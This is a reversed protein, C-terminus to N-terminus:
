VHHNTRRLRHTDINLNYNNTLLEFFNSKYLSMLKMEYENLDVRLMVKIPLDYFGAQYHYSFFLEKTKKLFYSLNRPRSISPFSFLSFSSDMVNLRVDTPIYKTYIKSISFENDKIFLFGYLKNNNKYYYFWKKYIQILNVLDLKKVVEKNEYINFRHFNELIPNVLKRRAKRKFKERNLDESIKQWYMKKRELIGGQYRNARVVEFDKNFLYPRMLVNEHEYKDDNYDLLQEPKNSEMYNFFNYYYEPGFMFEGRYWLPDRHLSSINLPINMRYYYKYGGMSGRLRLMKDYDVGYIKSLIHKHDENLFLPSVHDYNEADAQAEDEESHLYMETMSKVNIADNYALISHRVLDEPWPPHFDYQEFPPYYLRPWPSYDVIAYLSDSPLISPINLRSYDEEEFEKEGPIRCDLYPLQESPAVNQTHGADEMNAFRSRIFYYSDSTVKVRNDFFKQLVPDTELVNMVELKNGVYELHKKMKEYFSRATMVKM